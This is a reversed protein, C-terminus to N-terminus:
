ARGGPRDHRHRWFSSRGHLDTFYPQGGAPAEHFLRQYQRPRLQRAVIATAIVASCGVRTGVIQALAVVAAADDEFACTAWRHRVDAYAPARTHAFVQLEM